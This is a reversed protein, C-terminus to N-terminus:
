WTGASVTYPITRDGVVAQHHTVAANETTDTISDDPGNGYATPDAYPQDPPTATTSM